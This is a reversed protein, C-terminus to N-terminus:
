LSCHYSNILIISVGTVGTSISGKFVTDQCRKCGTQENSPFYHEPPGEKVLWCLYSITSCAWQVSIASLNPKACAGREIIEPRVINSNRISTSQSLTQGLQRAKQSLLHIGESVKQWVEILETAKNCDKSGKMTNVAEISWCKCAHETLHGLSATLQHISM